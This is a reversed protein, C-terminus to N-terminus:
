DLGPWLSLHWAESPLPPLSSSPEDTSTTDTHRDQGQQTPYGSDRGPVFHSLDERWLGYTVADRWTEEIDECPQSVTIAGHVRDDIGEEHPVELPGQAPEHRTDVTGRLV